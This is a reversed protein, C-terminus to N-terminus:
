LINELSFDEKGPIHLIYQRLADVESLASPYDRSKIYQRSKVFSNDINDIEFHDVLMAWIYKTKEWNAEFEELQKEAMDWQAESVASYASAINKELKNSSRYLYNLTILGSIIIALILVAILIITKTNSKM